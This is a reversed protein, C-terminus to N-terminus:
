YKIPNGQHSLPLSDAQLAPLMRGIGLRPVFIRHPLPTSPSLAPPLPTPKGPREVTVLEDTLALSTPEIWIHTWDGSGRSFSIAVWELIRAQSIGHVSSDPPGCDMPDCLTPCSKAVLFCCHIVHIKQAFYFFIFDHKSIKNDLSLEQYCERFHVKLTHVHPCM